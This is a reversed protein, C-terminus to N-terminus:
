KKNTDEVVKNIVLEFVKGTKINLAEVIEDM